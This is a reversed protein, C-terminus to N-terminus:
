ASAKRQPTILVWRAKNFLRNGQSDANSHLRFSPTTYSMSSNSGNRSSTSIPTPKNNRLEVGVYGRPTSEDSSSSEAFAKPTGWQSRASPPIGKPPGESPAGWTRRKSSESQPPEGHLFFTQRHMREQQNALKSIDSELETLSTEM